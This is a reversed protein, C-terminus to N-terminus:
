EVLRELMQTINELKSDMKNAFETLKDVAKEIEKIESRLGRTKRVICNEVDKVTLVKEVETEEATSNHDLIAKAQKIIDKKGLSGYLVKELYGTMRSVVAHKAPSAEFKQFRVCCDLKEHLFEPIAFEVDLALNIQLALIKYQSDEQLTEVGSVALSTLLNMIVLSMFVLFAIYLIWMLTKYHLQASPEDSDIHELFIGAFDLDGLMM